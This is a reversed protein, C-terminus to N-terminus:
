GAEAAMAEEPWDVQDATEALARALIARQNRAAHAPWLTPQVEEFTETRDLVRFRHDDGTPDVSVIFRCPGHDPGRHHVVNELNGRHVPRIIRGGCRPCDIQVQCSTADAM